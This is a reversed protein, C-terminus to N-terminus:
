RAISEAVREAFGAPNDFLMLHGSDPVTLVRAGAARADPEEECPRSREGVLFAKPGPHGALVTALDRDTGHVLGKASRHLAVPDALRRSAAYEPWPTLAAYEAMGRALFDEESWDAVWRSLQGRGRRLNAEGLVLGRVLDPRLAALALGISGGLSHGVVDAAAVREADLVAAVARAHEELSYGFDAPRDSYGFGLLDVLLSRRGLAALSPHQAIEPFDHSSSAGLGHLFVQVPAGPPGAVEMWRIHSGAAGRLDLELQRM